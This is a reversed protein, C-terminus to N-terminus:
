LIISFIWGFNHTNCVPLCVGLSHRPRYILVTLAPTDPAFRYFTYYPHFIHRRYKKPNEAITQKFIPRGQSEPNWFISSFMHYFLQTPSPSAAYVWTLLQFTQM